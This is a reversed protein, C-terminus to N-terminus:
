RRVVFRVEPGPLSVMRVRQATLRARYRGPKLTAGFAEERRYDTIVAFTGDGRRVTLRLGTAFMATRQGS